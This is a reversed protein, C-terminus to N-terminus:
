PFHSRSRNGDGYGATGVLVVTPRWGALAQPVNEDTARLKAREAQLQLQSSYTAALAEALTHPVSTISTPSNAPPKPKVPTAQAVTVRGPPAAKGPPQSSPMAAASNSQPKQAYAPAAVLGFGLGIVL